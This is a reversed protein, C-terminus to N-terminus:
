PRQRTTRGSMSILLRTNASFDKLLDQRIQGERDLLKFPIEGGPNWQEEDGVVGPSEDLEKLRRALRGALPRSAESHHVIAVVSPKAFSRSVTVYRKFANAVLRFIALQFDAHKSTLLVLDSPTM